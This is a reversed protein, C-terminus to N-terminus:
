APIDSGQGIDLFVKYPLVDAVNAILPTKHL